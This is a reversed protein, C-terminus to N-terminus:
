LTICACGRIVTIRRVTPAPPPCCLFAVEVQAVRWRLLDRDLGPFVNKILTAHLFKLFRSFNKPSDAAYKQSTFVILKKSKLYFIIRLNYSEKRISPFLLSPQLSTLLNGHNTM